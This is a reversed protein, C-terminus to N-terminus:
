SGWSCAKIATETAMLKSIQPHHRCYSQLIRFHRLGFLRTVARDANGRAHDLRDVLHHPGRPLHQGLDSALRGGLLEGFFERHREVL